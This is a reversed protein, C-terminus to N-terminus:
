TLRLPPKPLIEYQQVEQRLAQIEKILDSDAQHFNRDRLQLMEQRLMAIIKDKKDTIATQAINAYTRQNSIPNVITRAEKFTINQDTKVRIVNVEREYVPCKKFRSPHNGHCNVCKSPARCPNAPDIGHNEGCNLCTERKSCNKNSHGFYGCKYCQLPTNYYQRVSVRVVGFYVFSPLFSGSFSLVLLPTNVKSGQIFKTIRRISVINQGELEKLLEEENMDVTDVDHIIVQVTNLTPHFIVEVETGDTLKEMQLLSDVVSRLSTCIVFQTGRAEKVATLLKTPDEGIAQKISLSIIFPNSPLTSTANDTRNKARLLLTQQDILDGSNMHDPLTQRLPPWSGWNQPSHRENM